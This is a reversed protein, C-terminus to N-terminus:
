YKVIYNLVSCSDIAGTGLSLRLRGSLQSLRGSLRATGDMYHLLLCCIPYLAPAYTITPNNYYLVALVREATWVGQESLAYRNM